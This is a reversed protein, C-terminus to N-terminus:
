FIVTEIGLMDNARKIKQSQDGYVMMWHRGDMQLDIDRVSGEPVDLEVQTRCTPFATNRVINARIVVMKDMQDHSIYTLTVPGEEKLIQLGSPMGPIEFYDYANIEDMGCNDCGYCHNRASTCHSVLMKNDEPFLYPNCMFCPADSAFATIMMDLLSTTDGECASIIGEENLQGMAYCSTANVAKHCVSWLCNITFVDAGNEKILDHLLHYVKVPGTLDMGDTRDYKLIDRLEDQSIKKDYEHFRKLFTDASIQKYQIGFKEQIARVMEYGWNWSHYPEYMPEGVFLATSHNVKYKVNLASLTDKLDELSESVFAQNKLGMYADLKRYDRLFYVHWVAGYSWIEEYPFISFVVPKNKAYLAAFVVDNTAHGLCKFDDVKGFPVVVYADAEDLDLIENETTVHRYFVEADRPITAGVREKVRNLIGEDVPRDWRENSQAEDLELSAQEELSKKTYTLKDGIVICGIRMKKMM